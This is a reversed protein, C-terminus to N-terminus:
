AKGLPYKASNGKMDINKTNNVKIGSKAYITMRGDLTGSKLARWSCATRATASYLLKM